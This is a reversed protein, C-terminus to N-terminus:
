HHDDHGGKKKLVFKDVLITVVMAAAAYKFGRFFSYKVGDMLRPIEPQYRWVENRIWPDKLGERALLRQYEELEPIGQWKYTKWDPIEYNGGTM